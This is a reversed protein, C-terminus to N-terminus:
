LISISFYSLDERENSLFINPPETALFTTSIVDPNLGPWSFLGKLGAAFPISSWSCSTSISRPSKSYSAFTQWRMKQLVNLPNQRCEWFQIVKFNQQHVDQVQISTSVCILVDRLVIVKHFCGYLTCNFDRLFKKGKSSSTRLVIKKWNQSYLNKFLNLSIKCFSWKSTELETM